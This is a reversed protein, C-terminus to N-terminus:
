CQRYVQTAIERLVEINLLIPIVTTDTVSVTISCYTEKCNRLM